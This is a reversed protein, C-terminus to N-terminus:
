PSGGLGDLPTSRLAGGGAVLIRQHEFWGPAIVVPVAGAVELARDHHFHGVLAREAGAAAARRGFAELASLPLDGSKYRRNTRSLRREAALVLRQGVAGPLVRAVAMAPASRSLGHWLAYLRDNANLRDGHAVFTRAGGLEVLTEQEYVADFARGLLAEKVLYDRNGVVFRVERGSGRLAILAQLVQRQFPTWFREPALWGVFLDGLLFLDVEASRARELLRLLAADAEPYAGAHPDALVWTPRM